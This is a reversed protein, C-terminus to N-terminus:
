GRMRAFLRQQEVLGSTTTPLARRRALEFADALQELAAGTDLRELEARKVQALAEDARKWTEVWRRLDGDSPPSSM